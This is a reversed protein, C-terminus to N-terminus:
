QGRGPRTALRAVVLLRSSIKLRSAQAAEPNIELEISSGNRVLNIIGGAGIFEDSQCVTLVSTDQVSQMIDQIHGKDHFGIFLIQCHRSDRILGLSRAEVRRGNAHKGVVAQRLAESIGDDGISCIVIPEDPSRFSEAPWEVFKAFNYLYAAKVQDENARSAQGVLSASLLCFTILGLSRGFSRYGKRLDYTIHSLKQM